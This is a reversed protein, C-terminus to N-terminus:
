SNKWLKIYHFFKKVGVYFISSLLFYTTILLKIKIIKKYIINEIGDIIIWYNNYKLNKIYLFYLFFKLIKFLVKFLLLNIFFIYIKSIFNNKYFFNNINFYNFNINIFCKKLFFYYCFNIFIMKGKKGFNAIKSNYYNKYFNNGLGGKGGKLIKIFYNNQVIYIKKNYYKLYGGIPLKLVGDKGKKGKKLKNSGNFGNNAIFLNINLIKYNNNFFIYIDGGDGGDGGNAYFKNNIIIYSINGNGGDGSKLLIKKNIFM